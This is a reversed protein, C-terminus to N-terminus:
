DCVRPEKKVEDDPGNQSRQRFTFLLCIPHFGLRALWRINSGEARKGPELPPFFPFQKLELNM